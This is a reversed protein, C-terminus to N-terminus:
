KLWYKREVLNRSFPPLTIFRWISFRSSTRKKKKYQHELDDGTVKCDRFPVKFRIGTQLTTLMTLKCLAFSTEKDDAVLIRFTVTQENSNMSLAILESANDYALQDKGNVTNTQIQLPALSPLKRLFFLFVTKHITASIAALRIM